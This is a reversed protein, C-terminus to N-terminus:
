RKRRALLSLAGLSLLAASSPEPVTIPTATLTYSLDNIHVAANTAALQISSSTLAYNSAITQVSAGGQTGWGNNAVSVGTDGVIGFTAGDSGTAINATLSLSYSYNAFDLGSFDYQTSTYFSGASYTYDDFTGFSNSAVNISGSVVSDYASLSGSGGTSSVVTVASAFGMSAIFTLLKIKM